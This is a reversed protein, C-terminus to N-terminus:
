ESQLTKLKLTRPREVWGDSGNAVIEVVAVYTETLEIIKGDNRGLYNGLKVRHVGNKDDQMLAWLSNGMQLTGVMNLSDISFQELFEKARNPDPKVNAARGLLTIDAIQVPKEFPSRMGSASYNFTQAAKFPPIPKIVGAPKARVEAVFADLDAFEGSSCGNLLVSVFIVLVSITKKMANFFYALM